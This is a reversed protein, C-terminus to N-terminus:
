SIGGRYIGAAREGPAATHQPDARFVMRDVDKEPFPVLMVNYVVSFIATSAGIGLGLTVDVGGRIGSGEM